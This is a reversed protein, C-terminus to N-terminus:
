NAGDGEGGKADPNVQDVDQYWVGAREKQGTVTSHFDVVLAEDKYAASYRVNPSKINAVKAPVGPLLEIRPRGAYESGFAEVPKLVTITDGKNISDYLKKCRRKIEASMTYTHRPKSM